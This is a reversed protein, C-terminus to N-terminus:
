CFPASTPAPASFAARSPWGRKSTIQERLHRDRLARALAHEVITMDVPKSVFDTARARIAQVATDMNGFGTIVIVPVNPRNEKCRQCIEIGSAGDLALDTVVADFDEDELLQIGDAASLRWVVEFGSLTLREKM